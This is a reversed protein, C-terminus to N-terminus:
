IDRMIKNARATLEQMREDLRELILRKQEEPIRSERVQRMQRSLKMRANDIAKVAGSVKIEDSFRERASALREQNGEEVAAKVEDLATLVRNRKEIYEGTDERTTITGIVKGFIPLNRVVDESFGQDYAMFPTEATRLVFRGVGGTLYEFWFDIIDPSVDALGKVETTGGTLSNMTNALWVAPTSTTSWYLQSSPTRDGPFGEKYVPQGAFNENQMIDVFPDAVTPSVFNAFSETGGIPNIVSLFTGVISRTAEESDYAGRWRRAMARGLNHAMNLGYPMPISIYSRDTIGFPDPLILNHELVYRPIKDYLKVGDDDEASLMANM